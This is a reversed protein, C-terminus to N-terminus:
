KKYANDTEHVKEHCKDCLTRLDENVNELGWVDPYRIHHVSLNIGSGCQVCRYGDIRLRMERLASWVSSHTYDDLGMLTDTYPRDRCSSIYLQKFQGKPHKRENTM